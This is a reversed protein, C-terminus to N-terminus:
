VPRRNVPDPTLHHDDPVGLTLVDLWDRLEALGPGVDDIVFTRGMAADIQQLTRSQHLTPKKGPAKVEIGFFRGRYCGLCDITRKGFGAPVPWHSYLGDYEALIERVKAKVIAEPTRAM